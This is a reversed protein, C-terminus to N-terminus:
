DCLEAAHESPSYQMSDVLVGGKHVLVAVDYLYDYDRCDLGSIPLALSDEATEIDWVYPWGISYAVLKDFDCGSVSVSYELDIGVM